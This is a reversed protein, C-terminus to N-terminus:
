TEVIRRLQNNFIRTSAFDIVGVQSESKKRIGSFVRKFHGLQGMFEPHPKKGICFFFVTFDFGSVVLETMRKNMQSDGPTLVENFM